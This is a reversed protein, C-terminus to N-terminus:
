SVAPCYPWSYVRLKATGHAAARLMWAGDGAGERESLRKLGREPLTASLSPMSSAAPWSRCTSMTQRLHAAAVALQKGPRAALNHSVNDTRVRQQWAGQVNRLGRSHLECALPPRRLADGSGLMRAPPKSNMTRVQGIMLAITFPATLDKWFAYAVGAVTPAALIPVRNNQGGRVLRTGAGCPM